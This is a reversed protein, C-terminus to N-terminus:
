NAETHIVQAYATILDIMEKFAEIEDRSLDCFENKSVSM